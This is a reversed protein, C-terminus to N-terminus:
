RRQFGRIADFFDHADVFYPHSQDTKPSVESVATKAQRVARPYLGSIDELWADVTTQLGEADPASHNLISLRLGEEADILHGTLLVEKAKGIGMVKVLRLAFTRSLMIGIRAVPIGMKVSSDALRLDAALALEFGGGLVYGQLEALVPVPIAEVASIAREMLAFEQNVADYDLQNLESLDFGSTFHAGRGRIVVARLDPDDQLTRAHDELQAWMNHTLCNHYRPNDLTLEAFPGRYSLNVSPM